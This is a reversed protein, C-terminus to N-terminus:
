DGGSTDIFYDTVMGADKLSQNWTRMDYGKAIKDQYFINRRTWGTLHGHQSDCKACILFLNEAMSLMKKFVKFNTHGKPYIGHHVHMPNDWTFLRHCVACDGKQEMYLRVITKQSISM